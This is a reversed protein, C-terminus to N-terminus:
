ARPFASCTQLRLSRAVIRKIKTPLLRWLAFRRMVGLSRELADRRAVLEQIAELRAACEVELADRQAVLGDIVELRAARDIESEELRKLLEAHKDVFFDVDTPADRLKVDHFIPTSHDSM